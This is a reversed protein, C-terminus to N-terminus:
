QITKGEKEMLHGLDVLESKINGQTCASVMVDTWDSIIKDGDAVAYPKGPERIGECIKIHNTWMIAVKHVLSQIVSTKIQRWDEKPYKVSAEHLAVEIMGDLEPYYLNGIVNLDPKEKTM